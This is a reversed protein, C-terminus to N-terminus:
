RDMIPGAGVAPPEYWIPSTYAREQQKVRVEPPLKLHYRLADYAPWSPTPIEIVRLYYFARQRPDFAPDRWVASLVPAGITNTYTARAVNVTDGVPPVKGGVMKRQQPNSWAADFVEEHLAGASDIWGKVVQVRDLNAGIPDKVASIMLTPRKGSVVAPKLVAGMPVGRAYGTRVWSSNLDSSGFDWGGFVRVTMRPGTTAYVERRMMADFLAGRTNATAWVAAYGGALYHWGFRGAATGLNQSEMVRDPGPEQGTHKGFFNDEDATALATHSDTSGIVGLRYPNVGTRAEIALGRKLAERVYEGAFMDPTKRRTLPLNGLDWGEVGFGAFEDNPSLFPHAESDGKIQTIEVLPEHAGRRRAYEASMPGGGPQTLEFMLGNSVNSNHPIALVKGGTKKEYADMYDWLPDPINGTIAGLPLIQDVKSKGDRFVVVRHLNNGDPMLTYEFGMFATFKGPQNYREVTRTQNTWVTTTRKRGAVPDMMAAPLTRNAAATILEATVRQTGEPGEHMMDHWRLLQPDRIMFRPADYLAKTAGLGDSHDAIVLFDLPRALKVKLGMTSTVEDGRAFRLADEPGLRVGFGFADVSNATHLHTDGWYVREPLPAQAIDAGDREVVEAGTVDCGAVMLGLLVFSSACAIKRM